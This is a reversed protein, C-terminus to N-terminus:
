FDGAEKEEREEGDDLMLLDCGFGTLWGTLGATRLVM